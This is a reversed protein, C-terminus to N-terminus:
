EALAQMEPATLGVSRGAELIQAWTQDDVPIGDRTRAARSRHEIEGPLLVAGNPERPPSATVFDAYRAVEAAFENADLFVGPKIAISAIANVLVDNEPNTCGEGSLTGGLIDVLINLGSGKHGAIPLM